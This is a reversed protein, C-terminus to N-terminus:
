QIEDIILLLVVKFVAVLVPMMRKPDLYGLETRIVEGKHDFFLITPYARVKLKITLEHLSNRKAANAPNFQPNKYTVGNYKMEKKGEADFKVAHFNENLYNVIGEDKFTVKTLMKCPGCWVTYVDMIIPKKDAKSLKQAEELTVWNVELEQAITNFSIFFLATLFFLHKM